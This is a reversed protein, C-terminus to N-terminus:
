EEKLAVEVEESLSDLLSKKNTETAEWGLRKLRQPIAVLNSGMLSWGYHGLPEVIDDGLPKTGGIPLLGKNYMIDGMKGTIDRNMLLPGDSAAFYFGDAGEDARGELAAKFVTLIANACDKVHINNMRSYGPGWTGAYGARQFMNLFIRIPLTTKQIGEGVGYIWGPFVIITRIPKEKRTGFQVILKDSELHKNTPPCNDLNLGIDTYSPVKELEIFEGRSNDSTIGLGSIHIYLPPKGPKSESRKDLGGLTSIVSAHHDSSACNIVYDAKAAQEQIIADDDLTGEVVFIDNYIEKLKAEKEATPARLLAVIHFKPLDSQAYLVLFQSGLFGTAGLLFITKSSSM